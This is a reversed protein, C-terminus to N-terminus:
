LTSFIRIQPLKQLNKAVFFQEAVKENNAYRIFALLLAKGGIDSSEDVLM